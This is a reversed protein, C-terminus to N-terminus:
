RQNPNNGAPEVGIVFYDTQGKWSQAMFQQRYHLTWRGGARQAEQLKTVVEPDDVSFQWVSAVGGQDFGGMNLEGEWTKVMMGKHSFKTIVGSREGESYTVNGLKIYGLGILLVLLIGGGILKVKTPIM